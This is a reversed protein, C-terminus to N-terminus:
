KEETVGLLERLEDISAEIDIIRERAGELQAETNKIFETIDPLAKEYGELMQALYKDHTPNAKTETTM